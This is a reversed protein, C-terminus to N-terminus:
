KHLHTSCPRRFRPWRSIPNKELDPFESALKLHNYPTLFDSEVIWEHLGVCRLKGALFMVAAIRVRLEM